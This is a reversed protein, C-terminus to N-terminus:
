GTGALGRELYPNPKERLKEPVGLVGAAHDIRIANALILADIGDINAKSGPREKKPLVNDNQDWRGVVNGACWTTVPNGDHQLLKPDSVRGTLDETAPTLSKANKRVIFTEYGAAEIESAMLNAQYDDLAVGIVHHGELRRLIDRLIVRYDIFSGPTLTLWGEKAWALFADAFRDDNLRSAKEGIWYDGVAYLTGEMEVLYAAANLDSRSALDIGVYLPFGKLLDLNLQKDSCAEWQDVSILNGAARSWINLRTRKYEQLKSESKKAELIEEEISVPNLSVGWLPNLKEIVRKDFRHDGDEENGAYLATFLRPAKLRGKLVAQCTKWDDYAPANIDRGATSITMFLPARRSGQATRLVGIVDQSQAHLEEALVMHPNYGDLTKARSTALKMIAGSRSFDTYDNTDYAGFAARLDPELELMRRIADYPIHAQSESGASITVEAGVEGECNACFLAVGAGLLTKGAKRPMWLSVSRVYRLGTDKERFGFVSALWWCQVPELVITGEFGKTHPLLEIFSCVDIVSEDSWVYDARGSLAERRMALFRKCAMEEWECAPVHGAVVEECYWVAM